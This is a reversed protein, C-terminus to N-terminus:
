SPNGSPTGESQAGKPATNKTTVNKAAADEKPPTSEKKWDDFGKMVADYTKKCIEPLHGGWTKEAQKYGQEFASRMKEIKSPDGGTLAKAFDLIRDSTQKVGWYGDESIDKLAQEKTKEDVTFDGAALTKWLADDTLSLTKAQKGFMQRILNLFTQQRTTMDDQMQKIKETDPKYVKPAAAAAPDTKEYVAAPSTEKGTSDKPDNSAGAKGPQPSAKSTCTAPSTSCTTAPSQIANMEM